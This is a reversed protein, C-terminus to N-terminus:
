LFHSAAGDNRRPVLLFRLPRGFFGVTRFFAHKDAVLLVARATDGHHGAISRLTFDLDAEARGAFAREQRLLGLERDDLVRSCVLPLPTWPMNVRLAKASSILESGCSCIST